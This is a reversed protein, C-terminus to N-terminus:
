PRFPTRQGLHTRGLLDPRAMFNTSYINEEVEEHPVKIM